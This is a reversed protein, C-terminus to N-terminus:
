KIKETLVDIEYQQTKVVKALIELHEKLEKIDKEDADKYKLAMVSELYNAFTEAAMDYDGEFSLKGNKWYLRAIKNGNQFVMDSNSDLNINLPSIFDNKMTYNIEDGFCVGTMLLLFLITKM